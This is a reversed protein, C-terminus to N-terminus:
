AFPYFAGDGFMYEMMEPVGVGDCRVVAVGSQRVLVAPDLNLHLKPVLAELCCSVGVESSDRYAFSLSAVHIDIYQFSDDAIIRSLDRFARANAGTGETM